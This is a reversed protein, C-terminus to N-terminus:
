EKRSLATIVSFLNIEFHQSPTQSLCARQEDFLMCVICALTLSSPRLDSSSSLRFCKALRPYCCGSFDAWAASGCALTNSTVSIFRDSEVLGPTARPILM